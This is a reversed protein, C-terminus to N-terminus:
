IEILGILSNYRNDNVLKYVGFVEETVKITNFVKTSINITNKLIIGRISKFEINAIDREKYGDATQIKQLCNIYKNWLNNDKGVYITHADPDGQIFRYKGIKLFDGNIIDEIINQNDNVKGHEYFDASNYFYTRCREHFKIESMTITGKKIDNKFTVTLTNHYVM